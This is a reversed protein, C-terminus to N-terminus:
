GSVSTTPTPSGEKRRALSKLKEACTELHLRENRVNETSACLAAQERKAKPSLEKNEM